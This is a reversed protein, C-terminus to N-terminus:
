RWAPASDIRAPASNCVRTVKQRVADLGNLQFTGEHASGPAGYVRVWLQGGDPLSNLFRVADGRFLASRGGASAAWRGHVEPQNGIRYAVRFEDAVSPKWLGATGVSIETRQGRCAITLLSPASAVASPSVKTAAIQPSYDLPSMTESVIWNADGGQAPAPPVAPHLEGWLRDLCEQRAQGDSKLCATIRAVTDDIPQGHSALGVSLLALVALLRLTM